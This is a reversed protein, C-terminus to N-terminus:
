IGKIQYGRSTVLWCLLREWSHTVTANVHDTVNGEELTARIELPSYLNFFDEFINARVCFMTGGVYQLDSPQISYKGKLGNILESRTYFDTGQENDLENRIANTSAIIGVKPDKDFIGLMRELYEKRVIRFLDDKWQQSNTHYPSTKDHLLLIYRSRKGLRLYADMLVLKGGIDKGKNTSQRTFQEVLRSSANITAHHGGNMALRSYSGGVGNYFLNFPVSIEKGFLSFFEQDNGYYNHFFVSLIPDQKEESM